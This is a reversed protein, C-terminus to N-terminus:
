ESEVSRVPSLPALLRRIKKVLLVPDQGKEVVCDACTLAKAPIPNASVAIVPINQKCRKMRHTVTEGDTVPMGYDLLVLDVPYAEFLHQETLPIM